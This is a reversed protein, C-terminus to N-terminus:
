YTPKFGHSIIAIIYLFTSAPIFFGLLAMASIYLIKIECLFIFAKYIFLYYLHIIKKNISLNPTIPQRLLKVGTPSSHHSLQFNLASRNMYRNKRIAM